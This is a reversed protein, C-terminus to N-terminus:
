LELGHIAFILRDLDDYEAGRTLPGQCQLRATEGNVAVFLTVVRGRTPDRPLDPAARRLTWPGRVKVLVDRPDHKFTARQVVVQRNVDSWSEKEADGNEFCVLLEQVSYGHPAAMLAIAGVVGPQLSRQGLRAESNAQWRADSTPYPLHLHADM